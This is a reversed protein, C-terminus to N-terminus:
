RPYELRQHEMLEERYKRIYDKAMGPDEKTHLAPQM